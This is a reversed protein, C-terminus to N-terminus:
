AQMAAIRTPPNIALPVRVASMARAGATIMTMAIKRVTLRMKEAKMFQYLLRM